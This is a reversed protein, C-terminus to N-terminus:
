ILPHIPAFPVLRLPAANLGASKVVIKLLFILMFVQFYLEKKSGENYGSGKLVEISSRHPTCARLLTFAAAATFGRAGNTPGDTSRRDTPSLAFLLCGDYSNRAGFSM